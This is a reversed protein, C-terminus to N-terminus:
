LEKQTKKLQESGNNYFVTPPPVDAGTVEKLLNTKIPCAHTCSYMRTHM